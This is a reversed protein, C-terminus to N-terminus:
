DEDELFRSINNNKKPNSSIEINSEILDQESYDTNKNRRQRVIEKLSDNINNDFITTLYMIKGTESSFDKNKLAWNCASQQKKMCDYVVDYGYSECSLLWKYFYTPIKMFTKYGLIEYMKNICKTRNIKNHECKEYAEKSSFYKNTKHGKSDVKTIKYANKKDIKDGTDVCKVLVIKEDKNM